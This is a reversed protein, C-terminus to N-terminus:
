LIPVGEACSRAIKRWRRWCSMSCCRGFDVRRRFHFTDRQMEIGINQSSQEPGARPEAMRCAWIPHGSTGATLAPAGDGLAGAAQESVVAGCRGREQM